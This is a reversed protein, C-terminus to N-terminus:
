SSLSLALEGSKTKELTAFNDGTPSDGSALVKYGDPLKANVRKVFENVCIEYLSGPGGNHAFRLLQTEANAWSSGALFIATIVIVYCVQRMSVGRILLFM